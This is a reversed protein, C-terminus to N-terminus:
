VDVINKNAYNEHHINVKSCICKRPKGKKPHEINGKLDDTSFFFIRDRIQVRLHLKRRMQCVSFMAVEDSCLM